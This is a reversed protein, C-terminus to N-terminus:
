PKLTPCHDHLLPTSVDLMRMSSVKEGKPATFKMNRKGVMKSKKADSSSKKVPM